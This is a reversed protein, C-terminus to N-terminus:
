PAATIVIETMMGGFDETGNSLDNLNTSYLIYTGPLVGTTDILVDVAEGGGLTISNTEYYLDAATESGTAPGRLIHAGTGVVKMTLGSTALTSFQTVSLNSIRLLIREGAVIPGDFLADIKQSSEDASNVGSSSKMCNEGDPGCAAGSAVSNPPLGEVADNLTDPYGRGNLMPYDDHMEAFPLPQVALHEDHFNSDMSGIQIALEQDYGTSGDGDNYVFTSFGGFTSGNQAPHVYLNGLMGMQMHEAAEVHCHYMFTGPDVINYYYTLSFSGNVAVSSEPVGDFQASANPFGHFHVTHPDFLDPRMITGANSLTLWAQQGEKFELTPAPFNADLLGEAIANEPAIGDADSFGFTYLEKGDGMRIFGDGATLHKCWIDPNADKESQQYIGDGNGGNLPDDGPCQVFVSTSTNRGANNYLVQPVIGLLWVNAGNNRRVRLTDGDVLSAIGTATISWGSQLGGNGTQGLLVVTGDARVLDVSYSGSNVSSLGTITFTDNATGPNETYTASTVAVRRRLTVTATPTSPDVGDSIQYTFTTEGVWTVAPQFFVAGNTGLSVNGGTASILAAKDLITATLVEPSNNNGTSDNGLVGPAALVFQGMVNDDIPGDNRAIPPQSNYPNLTFDQMDCRATQDCVTVRWYRAANSNPTWQFLGGSSMTSGLFNNNTCTSFTSNCRFRLYTLVDGPNADIAVVQYQYPVGNQVSTSPASIIRPALELSPTVAAVEDAGYDPELAVAGGTGGRSVVPRPDGDIDVFLEPIGIMNDLNSRDRAYSNSELHYNGTAIPTGTQGPLPELTLPGYAVIIFNGGEDQATTALLPRSQMYAWNTNQDPDPITGDAGNAYPSVMTEDETAVMRLDNASSYISNGPDVNTETLINNRPSFQGGGEVNLDWIREVTLGGPTGSNWSMSRNGMILNNDIAPNSYTGVGPLGLDVLDASHARSVIGAPQPATSNATIFAAAATATSDNNVITNHIIRVNVADQLLIGGAALSAVNNTIMNNAVLVSDRNAETTLLLDQGNISRLLIGGADGSGAHNGHIVNDIIKVSGSGPTLGVPAAPDGRYGAVMIGGASGGQAAATQDYSENFLVKNGKILGGPSRGYHAIGAGDGQSYNGCIYNTSVTYNDAGNYLAVGAGDEFTSTNRSVYNNHINVNVNDAYVVEGNADLLNAQGVRIGGAAVGSNGEVINNSIELGRAFGNVAVGAAFNAGTITFGDIRAPSAGFVGPMPAVLVVSNEDTTLLGSGPIRGCAGGGTVNNPQGPLLGIRDAPNAPCNARRNAQERWYTDGFNQSADSLITTVGAGYGQLFIPKTIFLSESYVGPPVMVVGGASAADIAAQIAHPISGGGAVVRALSPNTMAVIGISHVSRQGDARQVVLQHGGASLSGTEVDISTNTWNSTTVSIGDIYVTGMTSGFGLNRPTLAPFAQTPDPVMVEGDSHLVLTTNEGAQVLPGAFAGNNTIESVVPTGVPYACDLQWSPTNVFAGAPLIPTDLYTTTGPNFNLTYCVPSLRPDFFPDPIKAAPNLPDAPDQMYRSNLCTLLMNPSVGTPMPANITYTSPVLGNYRGNADTYLRNVENGAFDRMSIPLNAAPLKEGYTPSLPDTANALDNFVSGQIHGAPPVKTYVFFDTAANRGDKVEILKMSCYPRKGTYRSDVSVGAFLELDAGVMNDAQAGGTHAEDGVCIPPLAQPMFTDGFDVNKSQEDQHSYGPPAAAEVIYLGSQLYDETGDWPAAIGFGGDFVAPRIQSFNRIGDYCRGNLESYPGGNAEALTDGICGEPPSDDFSDTHVTRIADGIDFVCSLSTECGALEGGRSNRNQDEPGMAPIAPAEVDWLFPYNDIDALEIVGSLNSDRLTGGLTANPDAAYLNVQVRPVGPEWPEPAAFRPDNEARTTQAYVVGSIGGNEGAKWRAKGWEFKHNMGAFQDYGELLPPAGIPECVAEGNSDCQAQTLTEVRQPQLGPTLPDQDQPNRLCNGPAMPYTASADDCNDQLTAGGDDVTVRVGTAKFRAFDVEAVLWSFFPFVEEIPLYGSMDTASAFFISGDRFRLNVAQEPLPPENLDRVGNENLDEFTYHEHNGFWRPTGVTGGDALLDVPGDAVVVTFFSILNLLYEDWVVLGYTGPPVGPIDFSAEGEGYKNCPAVYVTDTAATNNLGVWCPGLEHTQDGSYFNPDAPRGIRLNTVTGTISGTGGGLEAFKNTEKVFGFFAHTVTPGFEVAFMPEGARLWVDIGKTGEITSTQHWGEGPHGPPPVVQIGYKGPPLNQILLEGAKLGLPNKAPNAADDGNMTHLTGDGLPLIVDDCSSNPVYHTGIPNGCVDTVLPGGGADYIFAVFDGLGAEGGDPVGNVPARDDFALIRAQAVPLPQPQVTVVATAMDGNFRVPAGSMSYCGDSATVGGSGCASDALHPIVTLYYRKGADVDTIDFGATTSEGTKVVPMYSKHLQFSASDTPTPPNAPDIEYTTDEELIWRVGNIAGTAGDAPQV